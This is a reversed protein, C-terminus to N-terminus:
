TAGHWPVGCLEGQGDWGGPPATPGARTALGCRASPRAHRVAGARRVGCRVGDVGGQPGRTGDAAEPGAPDERGDAASEGHGGVLPEPDNMKRDLVVVEMKQDLGLVARLQGATEAAEGDPNGARDVADEAAPTGDPTVPVM